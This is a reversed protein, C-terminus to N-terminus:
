ALVPCPMARASSSVCEVERLRNDISTIAFIGIFTGFASFLSFRLDHGQTDARKAYETGGRIAYADSM